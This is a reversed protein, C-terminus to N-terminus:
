RGFIDGILTNIIQGHGLIASSIIFIVIAVLVATFLTQWLSMAKKNSM